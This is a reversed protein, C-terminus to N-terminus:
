VRTSHFVHGSSEKCRGNGKQKERSRHGDRRATRVAALQVVHAHYAAVHYEDVVPAAEGPAVALRFGNARWPYQALRRHGLPGRIGCRFEDREALGAHQVRNGVPRAGPDFVDPSM